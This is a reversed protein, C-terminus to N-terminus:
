GPKLASGGDAGDGQGGAHDYEDGRTPDISKCRSPAGAPM